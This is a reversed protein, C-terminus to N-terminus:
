ETPFPGNMNRHCKEASSYLAAIAADQEKRKVLVVRGASETADWRIAHGGDLGLVLGKHAFFFDSDRCSEIYRIAEEKSMVETGSGFNLVNYGFLRSLLLVSVLVVFVVIPIVKIFGSSGM